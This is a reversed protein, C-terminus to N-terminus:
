VGRVLPYTKVFWNCVTKLSEEFNSYGNENWGLKLFKENSSPKKFQGSPQSIDWEIEGDFGLCERVLEAVERISHEETNGINIPSEQDYNNLV